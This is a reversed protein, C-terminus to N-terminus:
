KEDEFAYLTGSSTTIYVRNEILAGGVPSSDVEIEWLPSSTGLGNARCEGKTSTLNSQAVGCIIFSNDRDIAIAITTPGRYPYDHVRINTGNSDLWLIRTYEYPSSYQLWINGDPTRGANYIFRFGTGTSRADWRIKEPDTNTKAGPLYEELYSQALVYLKNKSSIILRDMPDLTGKNEPIGSDTNIIFDEFLFYRNDFTLRIIPSTLSYTPLPKKWNVKGDPSIAYINEKTAYYVANDSGTVPGSIAATKTSVGKVIETVTRDPKISTLGGLTDAVYVIGSATLAPTGVPIGLLNVSWIMKGAPSVAHLKNDMTSIYLIGQSDVVPSGSIGASLEVSWAQTPNKPISFPTWLTGQSDRLTSNWLHGGPLPPIKKVEERAQNQWLYVAGGVIFIVILSITSIVPAQRRLAAQPSFIRDDVWETLQTTLVSKKRHSQEPSALVRLGDGLLNFGLITLFVMGGASLAGWPQKQLDGLMQGLEPLGSTRLGVWDGIPIWIANVFYGLVGLEASILMTNSIEFALIMWVSPMIQPLIHGMIVQSSSSGLAQSAEIYLQSKIVRTQERVLRAVEGWGTILLGLVFAWIGMKQGTAAIICLAIFIVPLAGTLSILGNLFGAIQHNSWGTIIGILLGIVLRLGAAVFVLILTPRVAWLLRSFIDRGFDDSGLPFGPVMFAPFPAKVFSSDNLFVVFNEQLPDRPALLPGFIAIVIIIAVLTAGLWLRNNKLSPPSSRNDM